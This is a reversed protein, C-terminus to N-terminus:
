SEAVGAKESDREVYVTRGPIMKKLRELMNPTITAGSRALLQDDPSYLDAALQMGSRVQEVAIGHSEADIEASLQETVTAVALKALHPDYIKGSESLLHRKIDDLLNDSKRHMRLTDIGDALRLIRAEINIADGKLGRPFGSGDVSECHMEIITVLEDTGEVESLLTAGIEPYKRYANLENGKLEWPPVIRVNDPLGFQGLEHLLSAARLSRLQQVELGHRRAIGMALREVRSAHSGQDDGVQGLLKSMLRISALLRDELQEHRQELHAITEEFAATMDRLQNKLAAATVEMQESVKDTATVGGESRRDERRQLYARVSAAFVIPDVPKLMIQHVGRSILDAALKPELVGTVGFLLAPYRSEILSKLLRHGNLRPMALDTIVADYRNVRVMNQARVGDEATDCELGSRSLATSLLRLVAPDDDVLLVRFKRQYSSM